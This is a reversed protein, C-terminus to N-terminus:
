PKVFLYIIQAITSAGFLLIAGILYPMLTQKYTAKEEVSGIMYKMGLIVLVIVSLIIGVITIVNFIKNGVSTIESVGTPTGNVIDNVGFGNSVTTMCIILIIATILIAIIKISKKM